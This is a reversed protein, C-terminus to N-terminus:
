AGLGGRARITQNRLQFMQSFMKRKYSCPPPFGATQPIDTCKYPNVGNGALDYSKGSDDYSGYSSPSEALITVRVGIVNQWVTAAGEGTSCDVPSVAALVDADSCPDTTFKDPIGDPTGSPGTFDIAFRYDIREIGEVLPVEKMTIENTVPDVQIEQRVLTSIPKGGDDQAGTCETGGGNARSCPRIYYLYTQYQFVDIDAGTSNTRTPPPDQAKLSTFLGGPFIVGAYPDAQVYILKQYDLQESLEDDVGNANLDRIRVGSASRVILIPDPETPTGSFNAQSICPVVGTVDTRTRGAIVRVPAQLDFTWPVAANTSPNSASGCDNAIALGGAESISAPDTSYGYFGSARLSDGIYRLALTGNEQIRAFDDQVRFAQSQGSIMAFLGLSLVMGIALGILLEILSLGAQTKTTPIPMSM